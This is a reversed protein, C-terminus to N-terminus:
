KIVLEDYDKIVKDFPGREEEIEAQNEKYADYDEYGLAEEKSQLFEQLDQM